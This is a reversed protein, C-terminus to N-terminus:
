FILHSIKFTLKLINSQLILLFHCPFHRSFRLFFMGSMEDKARGKLVGAYSGAAMSVTMEPVVRQSKVLSKVSHQSTESDFGGLETIDFLPNRLDHARILKCEGGKGDDLNYIYLFGDECAVLLRTEKEVKTICCEYKLGPEPLQVHAFARDQYLVDGVPFYSQVAKSLFNMSWKSPEQARNQNEDDSEVDSNMKREESRREASEISKPDIKFIHVTETNSSATVYNACISFNLSAIQVYRKVGRRFEHCRQGNKVCFVRIVTGKTSATALLLGNSSFNIASLMSDHAAIKLRTQLNGADFIQVLGSDASAPYAMHSSLSLACLGNNVPVNKISHLLRM